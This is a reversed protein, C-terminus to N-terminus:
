LPMGMWVLTVLLHNIGRPLNVQISFELLMVIFGEFVLDTHTLWINCVVGLMLCDQNSQLRFLYVLLPRHFLCGYGALNIAWIAVRLAWNSTTCISNVPTMFKSLLSSAGPIFPSKHCTLCTRRWVHNLVGNQKHMFKSKQQPISEISMNISMKKEMCPKISYISM